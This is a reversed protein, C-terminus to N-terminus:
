STQTPRGKSPEGCRGAFRGNPLRDKENKRYDRVTNTGNFSSEKPVSDAGVDNEFDSSSVCMVSM